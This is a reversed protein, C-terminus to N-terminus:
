RSKLLPPTQRQVEKLTNALSVTIAIHWWSCSRSGLHPSHWLFSQGRGRIGGRHEPSTATAQHWKVGRGSVLSMTTFGGGGSRIRSSALLPRNSPAPVRTRTHVSRLPAPSVWTIPGWSARARSRRRGKGIPSSKM